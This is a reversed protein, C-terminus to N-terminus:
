SLIGIIDDIEANHDIPLGMSKIKSNHEMVLPVSYLYAIDTAVSFKGSKSKQLISDNLYSSSDHDSLIYEEDEDIDNMSQKQTM